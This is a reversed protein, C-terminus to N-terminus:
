RTTLWHLERLYAAFRSLPYEKLVRLPDNVLSARGVRLRRLLVEIVKLVRLPDNVLSANHGTCCEEQM